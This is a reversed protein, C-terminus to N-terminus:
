LNQCALTGSPPETKPELWNKISGWGGGFINSWEFTTLISAFIIM